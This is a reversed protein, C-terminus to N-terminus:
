LTFMNVRKQKSLVCARVFVCGCICVHSVCVCVSVCLRGTGGGGGQLMKRYIGGKQGHTGRKSFFTDSEGEGREDAKKPSARTELSAARRDSFFCHM